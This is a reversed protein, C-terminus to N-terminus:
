AAGVLPVVWKTLPGLVLAAETRERCAAVALGLSNQSTAGRNEDSSAMGFLVFLLVKFLLSYRRGLDSIMFGFDYIIGIGEGQLRFGSGQVRNKSGM